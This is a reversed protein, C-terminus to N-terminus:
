RILRKKIEDGLKEAKEKVFNRMDRMESGMDQVLGKMEGGMREAKEIIGKTFDEM